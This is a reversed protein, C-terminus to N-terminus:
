IAYKEGNVEYVELLAKWMKTNKMYTLSYEVKEPGAYIRFLSGNKELM